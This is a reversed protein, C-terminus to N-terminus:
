TDQIIVKIPSHTEIEAVFNIDPEFTTYFKTIADVTKHYSPKEEIQGNKDFKYFTGEILGFFDFKGTNTRYICEKIDKYFMKYYERRINKKSYYHRPVYQVFYDDYFWLETYCPERTSGGNRFLYVVTVLICGWATFSTEALLFKGFAISGIITIALFFYFLNRVILYPKSENKPVVRGDHFKLIYNPNEM